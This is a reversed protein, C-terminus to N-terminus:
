RTNNKLLVRDTYSPAQNKKNFYGDEFKNKKYTPVFTIDYEHYNTYKKSDNMSRHLQDLKKREELINDLKKTVEDFTGDMRYNLDGLIFSFDAMLDPDIEERQNRM